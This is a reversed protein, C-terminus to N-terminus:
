RKVSGDGRAKSGEGAKRLKRMKHLFTFLLFSLSVMQVAKVITPPHFLSVIESYRGVNQQGM